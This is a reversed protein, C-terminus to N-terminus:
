TDGADETTIHHLPLRKRRGDQRVAEGRTLVGTVPDQYFGLKAYFGKAGDVPYAVRRRWTRGM